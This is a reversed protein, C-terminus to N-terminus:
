FPLPLPVQVTPLLPLCDVVSKPSKPSESIRKPRPQRKPQSPKSNVTTPFYRVRRSQGYPKIIEPLETALMAMEQPLKFCAEYQSVWLLYARTYTRIKTNTPISPTPKRKVELSQTPSESVKDKDENVMSKLQNILEEFKAKSGKQSSTKESEGCAAVSQLLKPLSFMKAFNARRFSKLYIEGLLRHDIQSQM